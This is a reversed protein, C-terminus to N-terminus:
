TYLFVFLTHNSDFPGNIRAGFGRRQSDKGGGWSSSTTSKESEEFRHYPESNIQPTTQKIKKVVSQSSEKLFPIM